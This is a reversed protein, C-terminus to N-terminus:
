ENTVEFDAGGSPTVRMRKRGKLVEVVHNESSSTYANAVKSWSGDGRELEILVSGSTLGMTVIWPRTWATSGHTQPIYTQQTTQLM